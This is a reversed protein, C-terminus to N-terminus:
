KSKDGELAVISADIERQLNSLLKAPNAASDILGTVHSSVIDKLEIAANLM